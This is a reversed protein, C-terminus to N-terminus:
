ERMYKAPIWGSDLSPRRNFCEPTFTKPDANVLESLGSNISGDDRENRRPNMM